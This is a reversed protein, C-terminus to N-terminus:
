RYYALIANATAWALENQKSENILWAFDEINCMFSAEIIVSPAISPRCVYFNSQNSANQRTTGPNVTHLSNMLSDALPKSAPNRYWVTLGRIRTADTTEAMSNSHLSVFMDPNNLRNVETRENLTYFVDTDRVTTVNAGLERLRASLKASNSLNIHKEALAAGMMGVAGNDTDGHGADLVFNFGALPKDGPTLSKRKKLHLRLEGNVYDTYFGELKVGERLTLYYVPTSGEMGASLSEFISNSLDIGHNPAYKQMGFRVTMVKGDFDVYLAADVTANWILLDENAGAEYRGNSIVDRLYSNEMTCLVAEAEIWGGSSLRVWDGKAATVRDRQGSIVKWASGGEAGANPFLWVPNDLVTAYFPAETGILRLTGNATATYTQGNFEAVYMPKGIDLIVGSENVPMTYIGSYSSRYVAGTNQVLGDDQSLPVTVGNIRATVTAGAPAACSLYVGDNQSAMEDQPPYADYVGLTQMIEPGSAAAPEKLTVARAVAPQGAQTFTFANYGGSLPMYVSFFGEQTRNTVETNNVYLPIGPVCTGFFNYGNVGTVTKDGNPQAVSLSTMAPNPIYPAAPSLPAPSKPPVETVWVIGSGAPVPPSAAAGSQAALLASDKATYYASLRDGVFGDLSGARFFISGKVVPSTANMNLQRIVEDNWGAVGEDERYAAHGVYLDVHTGACINEWWPLLKAYDAAEFGINWYIQPCIYDIWGESVWRRSDCYSSKYSEYGNTASGFPDSTNNQWIAFPSIGYRIDPNIEKVTAQLLRVLANVNERRWDDKNAGFGYLNYSADDPFAPDPYFYDDLHIGDVAYNRLIEAVGDAILQRCEPKGPDFYLADKHAIVLGPNIRAPHNAALQNVDTIKASAYTVRYPNIWAHIQIGMAHAREVWYALPDFGGDPAVGQTGTLAEAWPFIASPYLADGSPRVQVMLANLRMQAARGIIRDIEAKLEASTLGKKSPFDLNYASSVWMARFDGSVDAARVHVPAVCMLLFSFLLFFFKQTYAFKKM